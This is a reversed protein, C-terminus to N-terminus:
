NFSVKKNKSNRLKKFFKLCYRAIKKLWNDKFYYNTYLKIKKAKNSKAVAMDAMLQFVNYKNLVMNRSDKISDIKTDYLCGEIANKISAISKDYDDIDILMISDISFYDHINECGCYIPLAFGIYADALKESWYDESRTNEIVLHYKYKAIADWKDLIPKYGVGYVDIYKSIPSSILKDLFNVRKQHGISVNIPSYVVSMKNEKAFPKMNSFDDYNYKYNKSFHHGKDIKVSIGVWWTLWNMYTINPHKIHRDCIVLHSFQDMFKNSVSSITENPEMSVYVIHNPDCLCEETNALGSGHLVFWWDCEQVDSNIFFECDGWIGSMGPTQRLYLNTPQSAASVKIRLM